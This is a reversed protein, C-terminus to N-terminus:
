EGRVVRFTYGKRTASVPETAAVVIYPVAASLIFM